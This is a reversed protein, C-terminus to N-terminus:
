VKKVTDVITTAAAKLTDARAQLAKIEAEVGQLKTRLWPWTYISATYGGALMVIYLFVTM